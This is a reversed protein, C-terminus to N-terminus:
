AAAGNRRNWDAIVRDEWLDRASSGMDAWNLPRRALADALTAPATDTTM